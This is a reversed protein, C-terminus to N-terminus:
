SSFSRRLGWSDGIRTFRDANDHLLARLEDAKVDPMAQYIEPPTMNRRELLDELQQLNSRKRQAQLQPFDSAKASEVRSLGFEDFTYKLMMPPPPSFDNGKTVELRVGLENDKQEAQLKVGVDAGAMWFQSGFMRTKDSHGTHGIGVWAPCMENLSDMTDNTPQNENLDGIGARSISDVIVLEVNMKDVTRRAVPLINSLPQGRRNYMLLPEAPDLGLATNVCGLRRQLSERSRELNIYLVKAQKTEWLGNLGANVAVALIMATTSKGKGPDGFILTGGHELVHPKARWDLPLMANGVVEEATDSDIYREWLTSAFVDLEHKLASKWVIDEAMTGLKSHAANCLRIREEARDANFVSYALMKQDLLVTLKAHVGTKENRIDEARFTMISGNDLKVHSEVPKDM